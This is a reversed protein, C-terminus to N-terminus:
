IVIILVGAFVATAAFLLAAYQQVRGTQMRRLGQGSGEAAAGSGDVINDVIGQDITDYVFHGAKVSSSGATNVVADIVNQNFWYAARAIPGKIARIIVDTYLWDFYYKNVLVRHGTRAVKNRETIGHPGLGRFYWAYALGFGLMGLVFSVAAIGINFEPHAFTQLASPFYDGKPEFYHEFRLAAGDPVSDLFRSNPLNVLGAVIALGTLIYLPM